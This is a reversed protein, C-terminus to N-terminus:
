VATCGLKALAAKNIGSLAMNTDTVITAGSQLAELGKQVAGNAFVLTDLYDFDATTHIVRQIIPAEDRDLKREGIEAQIIAFSQKEIEGPLVYIEKNM